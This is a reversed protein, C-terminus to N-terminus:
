PKPIYDRGRKLTNSITRPTIGFAGAIAEWTAGAEVAEWIALHWMRRRWIDKKAPSIGGHAAILAAGIPGTCTRWAARVAEVELAEESVRGAVNVLLRDVGELRGREDLALYLRLLPGLGAVGPGLQVAEIFMAVEVSEALPARPATHRPTLTAAWQQGAPLGHAVILGRVTEAAHHAAEHASIHPRSKAATPSLRAIATTVARGAFTASM